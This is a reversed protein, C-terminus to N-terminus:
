QHLLRKLLTKLKQWKTSTLHIKENMLKKYAVFFWDSEEIPIKQLEIYDIPKQDINLIGCHVGSDDFGINKVIPQTPHLCYMNKIVLSAHWRIAWSDNKGAIQDKLMKVFDHTNRRNFEFGLDKKQITNLLEKGNPNFEKWAREWTGWGWCDAGKLFFTSEKHDKLDLNYNWAHICGVRPEGNYLNLADNMYKLFGSNPVIDDELIIIRGHKRIIETVGNIISNALGLNVTREIITINRFGMINRIYKRVALVNQEDVSRKVEDSFVYLDSDSAIQNKLLAEVTQQTHWPRNYVFLGIPAYNM